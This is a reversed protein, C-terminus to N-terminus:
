SPGKRFPLVPQGPQDWSTPQPQHTVNARGARQVRSRPMSSASAPRDPWRRDDVRDTSETRRASGSVCRACATRPRSCSCARPPWSRTANWCPVCGPAPTRTRAPSTSWWHRSPRGCRAISALWRPSRAPLRTAGASSSRRTPRCRMRRRRHRSRSGRAPPPHPRPRRARPQRPSAPTAVPPAPDILVGQVALWTIAALMAAGAWAVLVQNGAVRRCRQPCPGMNSSHSSKRGCPPAVILEVHQAAAVRRAESDFRGPTVVIAAHAGRLEASKGLGLIPPAGVVSANGYKCLLLVRQSNRELVIDGSASPLEDGPSNEDKLVRYGRVQMAQLVLHTFECWRLSALHELGGALRSESAPRARLWASAALGAVVFVFMAILLATM